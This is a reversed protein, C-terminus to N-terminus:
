GTTKLCKHSEQRISILSRVIDAVRRAADPRGFSIARKGMEERLGADNFLRLIEESLRKGNLESDPVVVAAQMSMLKEANIRQHDSAAFPYPILISPKGTVCIESLTTAGARSIVIDAVAYAEAMQYIFPTVTGQFQMDQYASRVFRYDDEGTQHLFQIDRKLETLYPLAEVIAHNISSAGRSGGFILITFLEEKLSFLKLGAEYSGKQIKERVPNGTLHVKHAPFYAMSEQYTICVASAFRSLLRNAKGPVTNQEMILVPISQLWAAFVPAASVYGGTGIVIDPETEKLVRYSEKLGKLFSWIARVRRRGRKGVVGEVTIFRIDYGERPVVRSEIGRETGIFLLETNSNRKKLEDAVALAPFLHGGTGGGAIIVRM